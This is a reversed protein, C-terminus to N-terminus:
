LLSICVKTFSFLAFAFFLIGWIQAPIQTYAALSAADGAEGPTKFSLYLVMFASSISETLLIASMLMGGHIIWLDNGRIMILVLLVLFSICWFVGYMNRVWLLLAASITIGLGYFVWSAHGKSILTFCLLAFASSFPYGAFSTMVRGIWSKSGTMILGETNAFLSISRVKGDFLLSCLAHGVEHIMTHIICLYRGIVPIRCLILAGLIYAAFVM